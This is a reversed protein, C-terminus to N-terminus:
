DSLENAAENQQEKDNFRLVELLKQLKPRSLENVDYIKFLHKSFENADIGYEKVALYLQTKIGKNIEEETPKLARSYIYAPKAGEFTPNLIHKYM